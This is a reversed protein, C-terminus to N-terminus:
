QSYMMLYGIRAATIFFVVTSFITYVLPFGTEYRLFFKRRDEDFITSLTQLSQNIVRIEKTAEDIVPSVEVEREEFELPPLETYALRYLLNDNNDSYDTLQRLEELAQFLEAHQIHNLIYEDIDGTDILRADKIQELGKGIIEKSKQSIRREHKLIEERAYILRPEFKKYKEGFVEYDQLRSERASFWERLAKEVEDSKAAISDYGQSVVGESQTLIAVTSYERFGYYFYWSALLSFLAVIEPSLSIFGLYPIVGLDKSDTPTILLSVCVVTTISSSALVNRRTVRFQEDVKITKVEASASDDGDVM